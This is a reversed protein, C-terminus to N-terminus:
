FDLRSKVFTERGDDRPQLNANSWTRSRIQYPRTRLISHSILFPLFGFLEDAAELQRDPLDERAVAAVGREERRHDLRQVAQAAQEPDDARM